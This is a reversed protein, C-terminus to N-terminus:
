VTIIQGHNRQSKKNLGRGCQGPYIQFRIKKKGPYALRGCQFPTKPWWFRLKLFRKGFHTDNKLKCRNIHVFFM